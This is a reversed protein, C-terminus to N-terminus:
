TFRDIPELSELRAKYKALREMVRVVNWIEEDGRMQYSPLGIQEIAFNAAVNGYASAKVADKSAIWGAIFGGLYTNGGGAPDVVEAAGSQYYPPLWVHKSAAQTTLSGHEGSRVVVIGHGDTGTSKCFESSYAELQSSQFDKSSSTEFLAPLELHNPSFVDVYRCAQLFAERNQPFCVGPM